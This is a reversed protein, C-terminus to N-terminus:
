RHRAASRAPADGGRGGRALYGLTFAHDADLAARVEAAFRQAVREGVASSVTWHLTLRTAGGPRGSTSGSGHAAVPLGVPVIELEAQVTAPGSRTWSTRQRITQEAAVFPRAWWPLRALQVPVERELEVEVSRETVDFRRIRAGPAGYKREAYDRQGFAAWLRDLDAPYDYSVSFEM